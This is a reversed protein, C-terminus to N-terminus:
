SASKSLKFTILQKFPTLVNVIQKCWYEAVLFFTTSFILHWVFSMIWFFVLLAMAIFSFYRFFLCTLLVIWEFYLILMFGVLVKSSRLNELLTFLDQEALAYASGPPGEQTPFNQNIISLFVPAPGGQTLWHRGEWTWIVDKRKNELQAIVNWINVMSINCIVERQPHSYLIQM